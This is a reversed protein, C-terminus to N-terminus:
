AIWVTEPISGTLLETGTATIAVMQEVIFRGFPGKEPDSALVPEISLVMGERLKTESTYVTGAEGLWPLEHIDAGIGHGVITMKNYKELGHEAFVQLAVDYVDSAVVGPRIAEITRRNAETAVDIWKQTEPDVPGISAQRIFDTVYGKYNAGGDVLVMDGKAMKLNGNAVANSLNLREGAMIGFCSGKQSGVEAGLEFMRAAIVSLIDRESIGVKIAEWGARVGECSIRCGERMVDIEAPSKLMRVCESLPTIDVFEVEPLLAELELLQEINMGLRQGFGLEIGIRAKAGVREKILSALYPMPPHQPSFSEPREVWATAKANGLEQGSVLVASDVAIDTPLLATLPRFKSVWLVSLYGSFYRVNEEQTFLAADIREAEMLTKLRAYRRAYEEAPFEAWRRQPLEKGLDAAEVTEILDLGANFDFATTRTTIM